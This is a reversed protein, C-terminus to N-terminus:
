VVTWVAGLSANDGPGGVVALTGDGILACSKGFQSTSGLMVNPGVSPPVIPTFAQEYGPHTGDKTAVFLANMSPGGFIVTNGSSSCAVSDGQRAVDIPTTLPYVDGEISGTLLSSPLQYGVNKIVFSVGGVQFFTGGSQRGPAGAFSVTGSSNTCCSTGTLGVPTFSVQVLNNNLGVSTSFQTMFLSNSGPEGFTLYTGMDCCAVSTGRFGNLTNGGIIQLDVTWSPIPITTRFRLAHASGTFILSTTNAHYDPGGWVCYVAGHAVSQGQKPSHRGTYPTANFTRSGVMKIKMTGFPDFRFVAGLAGWDGPAGVLLSTANHNLAVSTGFRTMNCPCLGLVVTNVAYATVSAPTITFTTGAFATITYVTPDLGLTFTTTGPVISAAHFHSLTVSTDGPTIPAAVVAVSFITEGTLLAVAGLNATLTVIQDTADVSLVTAALASGTLALKTGEQMLADSARVVNFNPTAGTFSGV